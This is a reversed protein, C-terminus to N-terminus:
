DEKKTIADVVESTTTEILNAIGTTVSEGVNVVVPAAASVASASRHRAYLAALAVTVSTVILTKSDAIWHGYYSWIGNNKDRASYRSGFLYDRLKSSGATIAAILGAGAIPAFRRLAGSHAGQRSELIYVFNCQQHSHLQSTVSAWRMVGYTTSAEEQFHIKEAETEAAVSEKLLEILGDTYDSDATTEEQDTSRTLSFCNVPQDVQMTDDIKAQRIYQQVLEKSHPGSWCDQRGEVAVLKLSKDPIESSHYSCEFTMGPTAIAESDNAIPDHNAWSIESLCGAVIALPLLTMKM